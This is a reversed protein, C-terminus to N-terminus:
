EQFSHVENPNFELPKGISLVEKASRKTIDSNEKEVFLNPDLIKSAKEQEEKQVQLSVDQVDDVELARLHTEQAKIQTSIENQEFLESTIYEFLVARDTTHAAAVKLAKNYAFSEENKLGKLYLAHASQFYPFETILSRIDSTHASSIHEPHELLYTFAQTNM